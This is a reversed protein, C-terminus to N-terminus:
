RCRCLSQGLAIPNETQATECLGCHHSPNPSPRTRVGRGCCACACASVCDCGLRHWPSKPIPHRIFVVQKTCMTSSSAATRSAQANKISAKPWAWWVHSCPCANKSWTSQWRGATAKISKRMGNAEPASTTFWNCCRWLVMAGNIKVPWPSTGVATAM